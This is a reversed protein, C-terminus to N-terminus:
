RKELAAAIRCLAETKLDKRHREVRNHLLSWAASRDSGDDLVASTFPDVPYTQGCDCIVVHGRSGGANTTGALRLFHEGFLHMGGGLDWPDATM